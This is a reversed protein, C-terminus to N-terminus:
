ARREIAGRAADNEERDPVGTRTWDYTASLTRTAPGSCIGDRNCM